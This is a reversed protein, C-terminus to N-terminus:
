PRASPRDAGTRRRHRAPQSTGVASAVAAIVLAPVGLVVFTLLLWLLGTSVFSGKVTAMHRLIEPSDQLLTRTRNELLQLQVDARVRRGDIVTQERGSTRAETTGVLSVTVRGVNRVCVRGILAHRPPHITATQPTPSRYGGALQVARGHYGDPGDTSVRLPPAPQPGPIALFQAVGADTDITVNTMCAVSGPALPVPTVSYFPPSAGTSSVPQISRNVYPLFWVLAGLVVVLGTAIPPLWRRM